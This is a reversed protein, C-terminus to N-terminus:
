SNWISFGKIAAMVMTAAAMADNKGLGADNYFTDSMFKKIAAYVDETPWFIFSFNEQATKLITFSSYLMKSEKAVMIKEQKKGTHVEMEDFRYPISKGEPRSVPESYKENYTAPEILCYTRNGDTKFVIGDPTEYIDKVNKYATIEYITYTSTDDFFSSIIFGGDSPLLNNYYAKLLSMAKAMILWGQRTKLM